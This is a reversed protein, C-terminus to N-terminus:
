KSDIDQAVVLFGGFKDHHPQSARRENDWDLKANAKCGESAKCVVQSGDIVQTGEYAFSHHYVSKLM